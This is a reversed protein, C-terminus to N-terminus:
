GDQEGRMDAGCNPCFNTSGRGANVGDFDLFNGCQNCKYVRGWRGVKIWKGKKPETPPLAAIANIADDCDVVGYNVEYTSESLKNLADIAQQRSICDTGVEALNTGLQESHGDKRGQEYALEILRFVDTGNHESAFEIGSFDKMIDDERIIVRGRLSAPM